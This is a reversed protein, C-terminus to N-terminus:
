MHGSSCKAWRVSATCSRETSVGDFVPGLVEFAALVVACLSLADKSPRGVVTNEDQGALEEARAEILAILENKHEPAAHELYEGIGGLLDRPMVSGMIWHSEAGLVREIVTM